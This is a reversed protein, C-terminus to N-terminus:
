KIQATVIHPPVMENKRINLENAKALKRNWKANNKFYNRTRNPKTCNWEELFQKTEPENDTDSTRTDAVNSAVVNIQM